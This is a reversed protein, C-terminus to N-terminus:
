VKSNIGEWNTIYKKIKKKFMISIGRQARKHKEFQVLFIYTTSSTHCTCLISSSLTGRFIKSYYGGPLLLFYLYFIWPYLFNCCSHSPLSNFVLFPSLSFFHLFFIFNFSSVCFCTFVDPICLFVNRNVITKKIIGVTGNGLESSMNRYVCQNSGWHSLKRDTYPINAM